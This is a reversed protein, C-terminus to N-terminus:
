IKLKLGAPIISALIDTDLTPPVVLDDPTAGAIQMFAVIATVNAPTARTFTVVGKEGDRAELYFEVASHDYFFIFRKTDPKDVPLSVVSLDISDMVPTELDFKLSALFSDVNTIVTKVVVRMLPPTLVCVPRIDRTPAEEDRSLMEKAEEVSSAVLHWEEYTDHDPGLALSHELEPYNKLYWPRRYLPEVTNPGSYSEGGIYLFVRSRIAKPLALYTAAGFAYHRKLKTLPFVVALSLNKTQVLDVLHSVDLLRFKIRDIVVVSKSFGTLDFASPYNPVKEYTWLMAHHVVLCRVSNPNPTGPILTPSSM